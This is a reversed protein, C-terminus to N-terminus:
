RLTSNAFQEPFVGLQGFPTPKLRLLIPGRQFQWEAHSFEAPTWRGSEARKDFRAAALSWYGPRARAVGEAAPCPRDLVHPGFRELKRGDGFDLLEYEGQSSVVIREGADASAHGEICLSLEPLNYNM